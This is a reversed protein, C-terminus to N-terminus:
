AHINDHFRWVILGNQEIYEKKKRYVQNGSKVWATTDDVHNYFLPEHVIILNSGSAVAKKLVDYSAFMTTIIGTVVANPNGAKFNDVGEKEWHGNTNAKIQEIVQRATLSKPQADLNQLGFLVIIILVTVNCKM